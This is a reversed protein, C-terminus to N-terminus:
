LHIAIHEPLGLMINLNQVAAGSAGKGLNDLKSVLLCQDDQQEFYLDCYCTNKLGEIHLFPRDILDSSLRILKEGKYYNAFLDGLDSISNGFQSKNLPIIVEMGQDTNVVSPLFMPRSKLGSWMEIEPIHKHNLNMGYLSFASPSESNEYSEAMANGGGTYGSAGFIKIDSDPAIFGTEILPKILLIAGTAYCGPNSVFNSEKIKNRQLLDLEPLGYTWNINTRNVSSADIVRANSIKALEVSEMVAFDPLCLLTIDSEKMLKKKVNPNKRDKPDIELISVDEHKKLRETVQLGTTGSQGDIFIKYKKM